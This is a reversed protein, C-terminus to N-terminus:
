IHILSLAFVGRAPSLMSAGAAHTTGNQGYQPAPTNYRSRLTLTGVTLIEFFLKFDLIVAPAIKFFRFIAMYRCRNSSDDCFKARQRLKVKKFVGVAAVDICDIQAIM